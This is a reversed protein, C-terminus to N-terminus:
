FNKIIYSMENTGTEPLYSKANYVPIVETHERLQEVTEIDPHQEQIEALNEFESYECCHKEVDLVPEREESAGLEELHEYLARLGEITFNHARLIRFAEIFQNENITQIM